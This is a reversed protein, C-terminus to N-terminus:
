FIQDMGGCLVTESMGRSPIDAPKLSGPCFQWSENDSLSRIEVTHHNVYQKLPKKTRIWHLATM